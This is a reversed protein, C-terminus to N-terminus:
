GFLSAVDDVLPGIDYPKTRHVVRRHRSPTVAPDYGTAFIFPVKLEELLDAILFAKEEHLKLDIVAADIKTASAVIQCAADLTAVPGLVEAGHRGLEQSLDVALFYEDEVVLISRGGLRDTKRPM